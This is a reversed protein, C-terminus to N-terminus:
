RVWAPFKGILPVFILRLTLWQVETLSVPVALIDSLQRVGLVM